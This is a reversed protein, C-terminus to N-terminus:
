TCGIWVAQATLARLRNLAPRDTSAGSYGQDDFREGIWQFDGVQDRIFSECREFQADCSSFDAPRDVSQRTYIAYRIPRDATCM